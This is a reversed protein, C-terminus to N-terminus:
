SSVARRLMRRRGEGPLPWEHPAMELADQAIVHALELKGGQRRMMRSGLWAPVLPAKRVLLANHPLARAPPADSRGEEIGQRAGAGAAVAVRRELRGPLAGFVVPVKALRPSAGGSRRAPGIRDGESLVVERKRIPSSPWAKLAEEVILNRICRIPGLEEGARRAILVDVDTLHAGNPAGQVAAGKVPGPPALHKHDIGLDGSSREGLHPAGRPGQIFHQVRRGATSPPHIPRPKSKECRPM